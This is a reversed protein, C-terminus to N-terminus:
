DCDFAVRVAILLEVPRIFSARKWFGSLRSGM